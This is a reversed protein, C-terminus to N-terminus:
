DGPALIGFIIKEDFGEGRLTIKKEAFDQLAQSKFTVIINPVVFFRRICELTQAVKGWTERNHSRPLTSVFWNKVRYSTNYKPHRYARKHTEPM